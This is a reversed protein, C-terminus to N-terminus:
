GESESMAFLAIALSLRVREIESLDQWDVEPITALTSEVSDGQSDRMSYALPRALVELDEVAWQPMIEAVCYVLRDSLCLSGLARDVSSILQSLIEQPMRNGFREFLSKHVGFESWKEELKAFFKQSGNVIDTNTWFNSEVLDEELRAFYVESEPETLSWPYATDDLAIAELLDFETRIKCSEFFQSNRNLNTM